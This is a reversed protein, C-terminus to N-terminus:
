GQIGYEKLRRYLTRLPIGLRKAVETKNKCAQLAVRIRDAEEGKEADQIIVVEGKSEALINAPIDELTLTDGKALVMM